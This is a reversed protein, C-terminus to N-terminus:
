EEKEESAKKIENDLWMKQQNLDATFAHQIKSLYYRRRIKDPTSQGKEWKRYTNVHVHMIAAMEKPSYRFTTSYEKMTETWTKKM